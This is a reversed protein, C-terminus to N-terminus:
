QTQWQPMQQWFNWRNVSYTEYVTSFDAEPTNENKLFIPNDSIKYHLVTQFLQIPEANAWRAEHQYVGFWQAYLGRRLQNLLSGKNKYLYIVSAGYPKQEWFHDNLIVIHLRQYPYEM